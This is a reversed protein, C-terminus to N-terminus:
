ILEITVNVLMRSAEPQFDDIIKGGLETDLTKCKYELGKMQAIFERASV